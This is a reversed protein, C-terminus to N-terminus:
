KLKKSLQMFADSLQTINQYRDSHKNSLGIDVFQKIDNSPCKDLRTKGTLIFYILRTLAYTEHIAKYNAFGEIELRPDNLSGKFETNKSTLTSELKKVLGFDSLKIVKINRYEKILVNTTSIDRHFVSQDELHKFAKLIQLVLGIREKTTIRTNNKTIYKDITYDALEMTYSDDEFYRYVELIYPSNQEKMFQFERKFRIIERDNLDNKAKKLAFNKDYFPDKYKYVNAYSGSGILKTNSIEGDNREITISTLKIFIVDYKPIDIQQFDEPIPSGGSPELFDLEFNLLENILNNIKFAYKSKSLYEKCENIEKRLGILERSADATFHRSDIRENLYELLGVLRSHYYAFVLNLEDNGTDGENKYIENIYKEIPKMFTENKFSESKSEIFREYRGM